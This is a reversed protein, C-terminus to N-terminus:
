QEPLTLLGSSALERWIDIYTQQLEVNEICVNAGDIIAQVEDKLNTTGNLGLEMNADIAAQQAAPIEKMAVKAYDWTANFKSPSLDKTSTGFASVVFTMAVAVEAGNGMNNFQKAQAPNKWVTDNLAALTNYLAACTAWLRAQEHKNGTLQFQEKEVYPTRNAGESAAIAPITLAFLFFLISRM